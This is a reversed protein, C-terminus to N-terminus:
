KPRSFIRVEVGEAHLQTISVAHHDFVEVVVESHLFYFDDTLHKLNVALVHLQATHVTVVMMRQCAAPHIVCGVFLIDAQHFLGVDVEKAGAM